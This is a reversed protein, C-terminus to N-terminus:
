GEEWLFVGSPPRAFCLPISPVVGGNSLQRTDCKRVQLHFAVDGSSSLSPRLVTIHLLRVESGGLVTADSYSASRAYPWIDQANRHGRKYAALHVGIKERRRCSQPVAQCRPCSLVSQLASGDLYSSTSFPRLVNRAGQPLILPRLISANSVFPPPLLPLLCM